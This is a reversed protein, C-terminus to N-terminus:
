AAAALREAGRHPHRPAGVALAPPTRADVRAALEALRDARPRITESCASPADAESWPKWTIAGVLRAGQVASM